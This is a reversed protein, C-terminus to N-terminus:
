SKSNSHNVDQVRTMANYFVDEYSFFLDIRHGDGVPVALSTAEQALLLRYYV